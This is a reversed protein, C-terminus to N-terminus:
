KNTLAIEVRKEAKEFYEENLEIGIYDRNTNICAVPTTGVGMCSDLVLDGENADAVELAGDAEAAVLDGVFVNTDNSSDIRFRRVPVLSGDLTGVAQFGMPQDLNAM